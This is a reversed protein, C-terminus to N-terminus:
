DAGGEAKHKREKYDFVLHHLLKEGEHLNRGAHM